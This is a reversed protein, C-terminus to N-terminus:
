AISSDAQFVDLRYADHREHRLTKLRVGCADRFLDAAQDGTCPYDTEGTWHVLVIRGHPSLSRLASLATQRIDNPVLYYLVESFVILDFHGEPWETPIRMRQFVVQPLDACRQRAQALANDAVDVALLADCREALAHTFVGISCGVEWARACRASGIASLTAQYKDREYASTAFRWPDAGDRYLAEFYDDPISATHRTM